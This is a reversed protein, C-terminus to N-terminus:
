SGDDALAVDGRAGTVAMLRCLVSCRDGGSRVVKQHKLAVSDGVGKGRQEFVLALTQGPPSTRKGVVM